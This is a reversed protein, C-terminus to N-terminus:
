KVDGNANSIWRPILFADCVLWLVYALWLLFFAIVGAIMGPTQNTTEGTSLALGYAFLATKVTTTVAAIFVVAMGIASKWKGVYIRHVGLWGLAFWLVYALWLKKQPRLLVDPATMAMVEM